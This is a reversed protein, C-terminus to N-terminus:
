IKTEEQDFSIIYPPKYDVNNKKNQYCHIAYKDCKTKMVYLHENDHM